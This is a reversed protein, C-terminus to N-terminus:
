DIDQLAQGVLLDYADAQEADYRKATYSWIADRDITAAPSLRLQRPM